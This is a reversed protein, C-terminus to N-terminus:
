NSKKRVEDKIIKQVFERFEDQKLSGDKNEFRGVGLPQTNQVNKEASTTAVDEKSYLASESFSNQERPGEFKKVVYKIERNGQETVGTQLQTTVESDVQTQDRGLIPLNTLTGSDYSELIRAVKQNNYNNSRSVHENIADTEMKALEYASNGIEPDDVGELWDVPKIGRLAKPLYRDRKARTESDSTSSESSSFTALPPSATKRASSPASLKKTNNSYATQLRSLTLHDDNMRAFRDALFGIGRAGGELGIISNITTLFEIMKNQETDIKSQPKKEVKSSEQHKAFLKKVGELGGYGKSVALITKVSEDNLFRTINTMRSSKLSDPLDSINAPGEGQLSHNHKEAYKEFHDFIYGDSLQENKGFEDKKTLPWPKLEELIASINLDEVGSILDKLESSFVKLINTLSTRSGPQSLTGVNEM